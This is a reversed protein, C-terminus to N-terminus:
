PADSDEIKYKAVYFLEDEDREIVFLYDGSIAMPAYIWDNQKAGLIPLYFNDLYQGEKDFVDVLFGKEKHVTSTVVWIKDKYLLIWYVDNHYEPTGDGKKVREVRPYKRRFSKVIDVKEPDFVKIMYEPTHFLYYFRHGDFQYLLRTITMAAVSRKRRMISLTIPFNLSTPIGVGKPDVTHLFLQQQVIGEMKKPYEAKTLFYKHNYYGLLSYYLNEPRFEEILNGKNDIKIVKNMNSSHLVIEENFLVINNLNNDLEGPGEGSKYLNKVFKGSPDFQFLKNHEVVYISGDKATKIDIPRNFFFNEGDTIRQVETLRLVRGVNKAPPNEPNDIVQSHVLGLSFTLFLCVCL